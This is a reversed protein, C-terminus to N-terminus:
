FCLSISHMVMSNVSNNITTYFLSRFVDYFRMAQSRTSFPACGKFTFLTTGIKVMADREFRTFGSYGSLLRMCLKSYFLKEHGEYTHDVYSDHHYIPCMIKQTWWNSYLVSNTVAAVRPATCVLLINCKCLSNHLLVNCAFNNLMTIYHILFLQIDSFNSKAQKLIDSQKNVEIVIFMKVYSIIGYCHTYSHHELGRFNM